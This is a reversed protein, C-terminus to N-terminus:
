VRESEYGKGEPAGIGSDACGQNFGYVVILCYLHLEEGKRHAGHFRPSCQKPGSLHWLAGHRGHVSSFSH